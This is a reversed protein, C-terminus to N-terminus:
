LLYGKSGVSLGKIKIQKHSKGKGKSKEINGDMLKKEPLSKSIESVIEKESKIRNEIKSLLNSNKFISSNNKVKKM